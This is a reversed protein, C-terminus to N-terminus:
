SWTARPIWCSTAASSRRPTRVVENSDPDTLALTVPKGAHPGNLAIATSTDLFLPSVTAVKTEPNLAVKYVAPAAKPATGTTSPASASILIRGRYVSIADTGGKHPLPVNYAYHTVHGSYPSITYLSSNADENVTAIVKGLYPDATLGDVKGKVDWQRM